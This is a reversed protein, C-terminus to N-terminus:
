RRSTEMDRTTVTAAVWIAQEQSRWALMALASLSTRSAAALPACIMRIWSSNSVGYKQWFGLGCYRCSAVGTSCFGAIWCKWFSAASSCTTSGILKKSSAPRARKLEMAM